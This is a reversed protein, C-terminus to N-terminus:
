VDPSAQPRYDSNASIRERELGHPPDRYVDDGVRLRRPARSLERLVGSPGHAFRFPGLHFQISRAVKARPSSLGGSSAVDRSKEREDDLPFPFRPHASRQRVRRAVGVGFRGDSLCRRRPPFRRSVRIERGDEGRSASVRPNELVARDELRSVRRDRPGDDFFARPGLSGFTGGAGRLVRVREDRRARRAGRRRTSSGKADEAGGGM